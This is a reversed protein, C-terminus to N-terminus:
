HLFVLLTGTLLPVTVNDNLEVPGCRLTPAAEVVTALLAASVAPGLRFDLLWLIAFAALFFATSGAWSKGLFQSRGYRLGILSAATDAVSLILLVAVAILQPFLAVSAFAALLVYTAGSVRQWERSRVMFGVTARFVTAFASNSLRALEVAIAFLCCAGLAALLTGRSWEALWYVLPIAASSLHLLKRSIEARWPTALGM